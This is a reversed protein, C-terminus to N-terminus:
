PEQLYVLTGTGDFIREMRADVLERYDDTYHRQWNERHIILWVRERADLVAALGEVSDLVPTGTWIDVRGADVEVFPYGHERAYFDVRGLVILAAHPAFIAIVDGERQHRRVYDLAEDLQLPDCTVTQYVGRWVLAVMLALVIITSAVRVVHRTRIHGVADEVFDCLEDLAKAGLLCFLPLLALTYSDGYWVSFVALGVVSGLWIILLYVAPPDGPRAARRAMRLLLSSVGVLIMAMWVLNPGFIFGGFWAILRSILYGMDLLVGIDTVICGGARWPSGNAQRVLVVAGIGVVALILEPWLRRVRLPFGEGRRRVWWRVISLAVVMTLTYPVALLHTLGAGTIAAIGVCRCLRSDRLVLGEYLLLAGAFFTLQLLSYMRARGHWMIADTASALLVAAFLGTRASFWRRGFVYVVAVSLVGIFVSAMRAIEVSFGMLGLFLADVYIFLIGHGYFLDSPLVPVGTQLVARAALLTIYEDSYPSIGFAYQLRLAFAAFLVLAPIVRILRSSLTKRGIGPFNDM